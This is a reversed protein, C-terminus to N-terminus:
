AMTVFEDPASSTVLFTSKSKTGFFFTSDMVISQGFTVPFARVHWKVLHRTLVIFLSTTPFNLSSAEPQRKTLPTSGTNTESTLDAAELIAAALCTNIECLVRLLCSDRDM